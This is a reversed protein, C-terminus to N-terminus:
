MVDQREYLGTRKRMNYCTLHIGRRACVTVVAMIAVTLGTVYLAVRECDKPIKQDALEVLQNVSTDMSVWKPFIGDNTPAPHRDKCLSYVYTKMINVEKVIDNEEYVSINIGRDVM